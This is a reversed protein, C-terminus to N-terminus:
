EVRYYDTFVVVDVTALSPASVPSSRGEAAAVVARKARPTLQDFHRVEDSANVKSTPVLTVPGDLTPGASRSM